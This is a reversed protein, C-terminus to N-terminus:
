KKVNEYHIYKAAQKTQLSPLTEEIHEEADKHLDTKGQTRRIQLTISNEMSLYNYVKSGIAM